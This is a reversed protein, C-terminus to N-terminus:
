REELRVFRELYTMQQAPLPLPLMGFTERATQLRENTQRLEYTQVKLAVRSKGPQPGEIPYGMEDTLIHPIRPEYWEAGSTGAGTQKIGWLFVSATDERTRTVSFSDEWDGAKGKDSLLVIHFRRGQKRWRIQAHEGFVIGEDWAAFEHSADFATFRIADWQWLLMCSFPTEKHQELVVDLDTARLQYAAEAKAESTALTLHGRVNRFFSKIASRLSM